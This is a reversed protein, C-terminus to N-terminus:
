LKMIMELNLPQQPVFHLYGILPSFLRRSFFFFFGFELDYFFFFFFFFFFIWFLSNFLVEIEDSPPCLSLDWQPPYKFPGVSVADQSTVVEFDFDPDCSEESVQEKSILQQEIVEKLGFM